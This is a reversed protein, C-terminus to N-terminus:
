EPPAPPGPDITLPAPEPVPGASPAGNDAASVAPPTPAQVASPAPRPTSAATMSRSASAGTSGSREQSVIQIDCGALAPDAKIRNILANGRSTAAFMR